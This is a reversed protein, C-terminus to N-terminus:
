CRRTAAPRTSICALRLLRFPWSDRDTDSVVSACQSARRKSAPANSSEPALAPLTTPADDAAAISGPCIAHAIRTVAPMAVTDELAQNGDAAHAHRTVRIAGAVQGPARMVAASADRVALAPLTTSAPRQVERTERTLRSVCGSASCARRWRNAVPPRAQQNGVR